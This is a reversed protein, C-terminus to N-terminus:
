VDDLIRSMAVSREEADAEWREWDHLRNRLTHIEAEKEESVHSLRMRLKVIEERQTEITTKARASLVALLEEAKACRTREEIVSHNQSAHDLQSRLEENERELIALSHPEAFGNHKKKELEIEHLYNREAERYGREFSSRDESTSLFRRNVEDLESRAEELRVSSNVADREVSQKERRLRAFEVEMESLRRALAEKETQVAAISDHLRENERQQYFSDDQSKFSTNVRSSVLSLESRLNEITIKSEEYKSESRALITDSEIKSRQLQEIKSLFEEQNAGSSQLERELTELKDTLKAKTAQLERNEERIKQLLGDNARIEALELQHELGGITMDRKKLEAELRAVDVTNDSSKIKTRLEGLKQESEALAGMLNDKERELNSVSETLKTSEKQHKWSEARAKALDDKVRAKTSQLDEKLAAITVKGERIEASLKAANTETAAKHRQLMAMHTESELANSKFLEFEQMLTTFEESLRANTAHLTRNEERATKLLDDNARIRALKLQHQLEEIEVDREKVNSELRALDLKSSSQSLETRLGAVEEEAGALALTLDEQEQKLRRNEDKLESNTNHLEGKEKEANTFSKDCNNARTNALELECQLDKNLLESQKYKSQLESAVADAEARQQRLQEVRRDMDEASLKSLELQQQLQNAKEALGENSARLERNEDRTRKLLDDNARIEALKLQHKLDEITIDREKLESELRVLDIKSGAAKFEERMLELKKEAGALAKALDNRQAELKENALRLESNAESHLQDQLDKITSDRNKLDSKLQDLLRDVEVENTAGELSSAKLRELERKLDDIEFKSEEYKSKMRAGNVEADSKQKQLLEIKAEIGAITTTSDDLDEKMKELDESLGINSAQLARNEERVKELLSGNAKIKQLELQHQLEEIQSDRDKLESQLRDLDTQSVAGELEVKLAVVKKEAETLGKDMSARDEKLEDTADNLEAVLKKLSIIKEQAKALDEKAKTSSLDSQNRLDEMASLDGKAKMNSLELENRLDEITLKNQDCEAQLKAISDDLTARQEQMKDLKAEVGEITLKAADLEQNLGFAEETLRSNGEQLVRSEERAKELLEDNARIEALRLQHKLDENSMDRDKLEAELQLLLGDAEGKDELATKLKERLQEMEVKTEDQLQALAMYKAELDRFEEQKMRLKNDNDGKQKAISKLQNKADERFKSLKDNMSQQTEKDRKRQKKLQEVEAILAKIDNEMSSITSNAKAAAIAVDGKTQTTDMLDKRLKDLEQQTVDFKAKLRENEKQTCKRTRENELEAEQSGRKAKRLEDHMREVERKLEEITADRRAMDSLAGANSQSLENLANSRENQLKKIEVNAEFLRNELDARLAAESEMDLLEMNRMSELQKNERELQRIQEELEERQELLKIRDRDWLNEGGKLQDKLDGLEDHASALAARLQDLDDERAMIDETASQEMATMKELIEENLEKMRTLEDKAFELQDGLVAENSASNREVTERDFRAKDLTNKLYDRDRTLHGVKEELAAMKAAADSQDLGVSAARSKADKLEDYLKEKSEMLRKYDDYRLDSEERSRAIQNKLQAMETELKENAIVAEEAVKELSDHTSGTEALKKELADIIDQKCKGDEALVRNFEKELLRANEVADEKEALATELAAQQNFLHQRLRELAGTGAEWGDLNQNRMQDVLDEIELLDDMFGEDAAAEIFGEGIEDDDGSNPKTKAKREVDKRISSAKIPSSRPKRNPLGSANSLRANFLANRLSASSPGDGNEAPSMADPDYLESVDSAPSKAGIGAPPFAKGGIKKRNPTQHHPALRHRPSRQPPSSRPKIGQGSNRSHDTNELSDNAEEGDDSSRRSRSKPSVQHTPKPFFRALRQRPDSVVTNLFDPKGALTALMKAADASIEASDTAHFPSEATKGPRLFLRTMYNLTYLTREYYKSTSQVTGVLIVKSGVPDLSRQLLKTLCCERYSM